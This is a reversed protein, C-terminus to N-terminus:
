TNRLHKLYNRVSQKAKFCVEIIIDLLGLASLGVWLGLASGLEVVLSFVDYSYVRKYVQVDRDFKIELVSYKPFNTFEKVLMFNIKMQYCSPKCKTKMELNKLYDFLYDYATENHTRSSNNCKNSDTPFWIPLCGFWDKLKEELEQDFCDGFNGKTSSYHKCIDGDHIKDDHLELSIKNFSFSFGAQGEKLKRTHGLMRELRLATSRYPDLIYFRLPNKTTMEITSNMSFNSIKMCFGSTVVEVKESKGNGVALDSYNFSYLSELSMDPTLNNNTTNGMWSPTTSNTVKGALFNTNSQYGHTAAKSYNFQNDSCVYM